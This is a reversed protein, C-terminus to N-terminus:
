SKTWDGHRDQRIELQIEKVSIRTPQHVGNEGASGGCGGAVENSLSNSSMSLLDQIICKCNWGWIQKPKKNKHCQGLLLRVERMKPHLKGSIKIIVVFFSFSIKWYLKGSQKETISIRAKNSLAYRFHKLHGFSQNKSSRTLKLITFNACLFQLYLTTARTLHNHSSVWMRFSMPELGLVTYQISIKWM